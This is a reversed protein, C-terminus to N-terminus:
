ANKFLSEDFDDAEPVSPMTKRKDIFKAIQEPMLSAGRKETPKDKESIQEHFEESVDLEESTEDLTEDIEDEVEQEAQEAAAKKKGNEIITSPLISAGHRVISFQTGM